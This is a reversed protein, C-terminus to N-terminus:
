HLSTNTRTQAIDWAAHALVATLVVGGGIFSALPPLEALLIWALIIAFPTEASGLLGAESAPIMKTGETLLVAAIAFSVGFLSLLLVDQRPVALPDVVFWGVFFLQLGSMGGAFVVPTDRFARILVMYLAMGLTMLLAVGDGTLHDTGLGGAVVIAVGLLSVIAAIATRRKFGERLLWWGLAAAMFPATAYIVAVNAIYTLKFAFIFALSTLSGVTALLWGRWGLRITERLPKHRGLWAVYATILMGGLLGRWCAITWVDASIM